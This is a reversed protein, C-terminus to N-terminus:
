LGAERRIAANLGKPYPKGKNMPLTIPRCGEKTMKVVHKGGRELNWGRRQLVKVWEKQTRLKSRLPEDDPESQVTISRREAPADSLIIADL